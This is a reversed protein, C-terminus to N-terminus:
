FIRRTFWRVAYSNWLGKNIAINHDESKTKIIGYIINTM